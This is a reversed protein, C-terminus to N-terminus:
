VCQQALREAHLLSKARTRLTFDDVFLSAESDKLVSKVIKNIKLSFLLPSLSSGQSVGMEQGYTDSPTSGARVQFLRHSLFGDIFTPLHGRFDLDYLDSLIGHKWTTTYAKGSLFFFVIIHEKKAFANHIYSLVFFLIM